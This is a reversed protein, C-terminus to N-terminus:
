YSIWGVSTLALTLCIPAAKSLQRQDSVSRAEFSVNCLFFHSNRHLEAIMRSITAHLSMPNHEAAELILHQGVVPHM